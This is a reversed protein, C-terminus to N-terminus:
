GFSELLHIAVIICIKRKFVHFHKSNKMLIYELVCWMADNLCKEPSDHWRVRGLFHMVVMNYNKLILVIIIIRNKKQTFFKGFYVGFCM